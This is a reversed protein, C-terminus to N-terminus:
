FDVLDVITTLIFMVNKFCSIVKYVFSSIDLQVCLKNNQYRIYMKYYCKM